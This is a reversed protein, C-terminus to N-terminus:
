IPRIESIWCYCLVFSVCMTTRWTLPRRQWNRILATECQRSNNARVSVLSVLFPTM